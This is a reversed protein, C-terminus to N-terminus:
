RSRAPSAVEGRPRPTVTSLLSASIAELTGMSSAKCSMASPPDSSPSAAILSSSAIAGSM